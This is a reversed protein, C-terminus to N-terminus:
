QLRGQLQLIGKETVITKDYLLLLRPSLEESTLLHANPLNRIAFYLGCCMEREDVVVLWSSGGVEGIVKKSLDQTKVPVSGSFLTEVILLRGLKVLHSLLSGLVRKHVSKNIKGNPIEGASNAFARGGGRRSPSSSMGVRAQGTGKQRYLKRTSHKVESRSLQSSHSTQANSQFTLLAQRLLIHNRSDNGFIEDSILLSNSASGADGLNRVAVIM